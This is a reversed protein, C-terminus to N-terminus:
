PAAAPSTPSSTSRTPSTPLSRRCRAATGSRRAWRSRDRDHQRLRSWRTPSSRRRHPRRRRRQHGRDHVDGHRRRGGNACRADELRLDGARDRRRCCQRHREARQRSRRRGDRHGYEHLRGPGAVVHLQLSVSSSATLTGIVNDCDPASPDTVVVNFLDISGGNTVTIDFTATGNEFITQLNPSKQIDLAGAVVTVEATDTASVAQGSLDDASVTVTNTFGATVPSLTCSYSQTEGVALSAFTADCDPALPDSVIVDILESDGLNTVSIGFTATGNVIVQQTAPSKAVGIAPAIVDVDATDSAGVTGGAPEDATM